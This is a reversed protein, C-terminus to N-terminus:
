LNVPLELSLEVIEFLEPLGYQAFHWAAAAAAARRL